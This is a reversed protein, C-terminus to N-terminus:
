KPQRCQNLQAPQDHPNMEHTQHQYQSFPHLVPTTVTFPKQGKMTSGMFKDLLPFNQVESPYIAPYVM